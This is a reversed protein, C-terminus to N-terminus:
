AVQGLPDVLDPDHGSCNDLLLAVPEGDPAHERVAPLFIKNWWHRYVDRDVWASRQNTYPILIEGDEKDRFANPQKATGVM